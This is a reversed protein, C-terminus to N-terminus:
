FRMPAFKIIYSASGTMALTTALGNQISMREISGYDVLQTAAADLVGRVTGATHDVTVPNAASAGNVTLTDGSLTPSGGDIFMTGTFGANTLDGWGARAVALSALFAVAALGAVGRWLNPHRSATAKSDNM